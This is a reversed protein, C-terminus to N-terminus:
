WKMVFPNIKKENGKIYESYKHVEKALISRYSYRKNKYEITTQMLNDFENVFVKIGEKTM